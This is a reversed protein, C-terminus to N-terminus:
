APVTLTVCEFRSEPCPETTVVDPEWSRASGTDRDDSCAVAGSALGALVLTALALRPM